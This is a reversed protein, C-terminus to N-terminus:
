SPKGNGRTSNLVTM